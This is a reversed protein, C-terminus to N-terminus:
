GTSKSEKKASQQQVSAWQAHEQSVLSEIREALLAHPDAAAAYPGAKAIYVFKEHKLSEATSRYNTWNQQYQNLHLIGELITILMGLFGTIMPIYFKAGFSLGSLFPILAAAIIEVIKIRKFIRQASRGKSSYWTIQDELRQFIPDNVPHSTADAEAM